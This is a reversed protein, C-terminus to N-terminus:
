TARTFALPNFRKLYTVTMRMQGRTEDSGTTFMKPFQRWLKESSLNVLVFAVIYSPRARPRPPPPLRSRSTM